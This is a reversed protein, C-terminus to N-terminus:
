GRPLGFAILEGVRRAPLQFVQELREPTLTAAPPGAAALRGGDLLWAQDAYHLALNVDHLCAVVSLALKRVLEHLGALLTHQHRPDLAATPEDLLLLAPGRAAAACAQVLVRALQARQREGGSLSTYRREALAAADTLRLVSDILGDLEAAPIDPFPTGGLRAVERVSFDFELTSSQPLLARRRALTAADAALLDLGDFSCRGAQPRLEGAAVALLSSKGAGNPGLLVTLRHQPADASFGDLVRRGDRDLQLQSLTLM